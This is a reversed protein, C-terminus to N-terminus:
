RLCPARGSMVRSPEVGRPSASMSITEGFYRRFLQNSCKKSPRARRVSPLAPPPPGQRLPGRIPPLSNGSTKGREASSFMPTGAAGRRSGRCAGATAPPDATRRHRCPGASGTARWWPRRSPPAGRREDPLRDGIREGAADVFTGRRRRCGQFASEVPTSCSWPRAPFPEAMEHKICPLVGVLTGSILAPSRPRRRGFSFSVAKVLSTSPSLSRDPPRVRACM